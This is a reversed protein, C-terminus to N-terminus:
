WSNLLGTSPPELRSLTITTSNTNYWEIIKHKVQDIQDDVYKQAVAILRKLLVQNQKYLYTTQITIDTIDVAFNTTTDVTIGVLNENFGEQDHSIVEHRADRFKSFVRTFDQEGISKSFSRFVKVYDLNKRGKNQPNSFCKVLLQISTNILAGDILSTDPHFFMQDLCAIARDLDHKHALMIKYHKAFQPCHNDINYIIYQNEHGDVFYNNETLIYNLNNM